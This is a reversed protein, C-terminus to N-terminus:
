INYDVRFEKPMVSLYFKLHDLLIPKYTNKFLNNEFAIKFAGKNDKYKASFQKFNKLDSKAADKALQSMPQNGTIRNIVKKICCVDREQRRNKDSKLYSLMAEKFTEADDFFSKLGAHAEDVNM